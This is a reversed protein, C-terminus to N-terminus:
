IYELHNGKTPHSNTSITHLNSDGDSPKEKVSRQQHHAPSAPVRMYFGQKSENMVSEMKKIEKEQLDYTNKLRDIIEKERKELKKLTKLNKHVHKEKEVIREKYM